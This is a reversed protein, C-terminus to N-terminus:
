LRRGPPLKWRQGYHDPHHTAQAMSAAAIVEHVEPPEQLGQAWQREHDRCEPAPEDQGVKRVCELPVRWQNGTTPDSFVAFDVGDSTRDLKM